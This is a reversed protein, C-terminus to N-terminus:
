FETDLFIFFITQISTISSWFLSLNLYFKAQTLGKIHDHVIFNWSIVNLNSKSSHKVYGESFGFWFEM